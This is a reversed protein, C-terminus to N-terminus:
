RATFTHSIFPLPIIANYLMEFAFYPFVKIDTLKADYKVEATAMWIKLM